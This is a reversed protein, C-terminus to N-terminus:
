GPGFRVTTQSDPAVAQGLGLTGSGTLEQNDRHVYRTEGGDFAVVDEADLKVRFFRAFHSQLNQPIEQFDSSLIFSLPYFSVTVM